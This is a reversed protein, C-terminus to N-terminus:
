KEVKNSDSRISRETLRKKSIDRPKQAPKAPTVQKIQPAAQQSTTQVSREKKDANGMVKVVVSEEGRVMIIKDTDIEKLTFGSLTDGKRLAIQRKGRGPSTRQAKQDELYALSLDDTILTGYLIFEPKPLPPEQQGVKKEVPIKREPHFLNEESIKTYETIVPIRSETSIEEKEAVTKKVSPLKFGATVDLAPFFIYFAFFLAATLLVINVISVNKIVTKLRMANEQHKFKLM